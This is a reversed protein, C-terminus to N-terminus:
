FRHNYSFQVAASGRQDPVLAINWPNQNANSINTLPKQYTLARYVGYIAGVGYTATGLYFRFKRTQEDKIIASASGDFNSDTGLDTLSLVVLSIGLGELFAILVGSAPDKQIVFSGMGFAMNLVATGAREGFTFNTSPVGSSM